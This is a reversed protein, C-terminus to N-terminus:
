KRGGNQLMWTLLRDDRESIVREWVLEGRWTQTHTNGGAPSQNQPGSSTLYTTRGLGKSNSSPATLILSNTNAAMSSSPKRHTASLAKLNWGLLRLLGSAAAHWASQCLQRRCVWVSFPVSTRQYLPLLCCAVTSAFYDYAPNGTHAHGCCLSLAPHSCCCQRQISSIPIEPPMM